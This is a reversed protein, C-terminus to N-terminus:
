ITGRAEHMLQGDPLLALQQRDRARGKVVGRLALGLLVEAQHPPDVLLKQLRREETNPLHGPMQAIIPVHHVLLADPPQHPKHSQHWDVLPGVGAPRRFSVLGIWIQEPPQPHVTWILDPTRVDGVQGHPAPEKVKHRDLVPVSALNQGPPDRVRQLRVEADLGQILGDVLEARGFDHIGILSRLERGESPPISQAPRAHPDRHIPLTPQEVVDEDLPQPPRQFIFADIQM